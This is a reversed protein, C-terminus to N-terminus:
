FRKLIALGLRALTDSLTAPEAAAAELAAVTLAGALASVQNPDPLVRESLDEGFAGL